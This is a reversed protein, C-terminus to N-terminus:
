CMQTTLEVELAQVLEVMNMKKWCNVSLLIIIEKLWLCHPIGLKNVLCAPPKSVWGSVTTIYTTPTEISMPCEKEETPNEEEEIDSGVPQDELDNSNKM